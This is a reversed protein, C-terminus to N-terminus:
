NSFNVDLSDDFNIRVGSQSTARLHLTNVGNTCYQALSWPGFAVENDKLVQGPTAEPVAMEGISVLEISALPDAALSEPWHLKFKIAGTVPGKELRLRLQRSSSDLIRHSLVDSSLAAAQAPPSSMPASVDVRRDSLVEAAIIAGREIHASVGHTLMGGIGWFITWGVLANDRSRGVTSKSAIVRIMQGDVAQVNHVDLGITGSVAMAQRGGVSTIKGTVLTGKRILTAGDAVIDDVVRFYVPSDPQSYASSINQQLELKIVTNGSLRVTSAEGPLALTASAVLAVLQVSSWREAHIRCDM